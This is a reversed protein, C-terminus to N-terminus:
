MKSEREIMRAAIKGSERESNRIVEAVEPPVMVQEGKKIQYRKGNVGVFVFNDEDPRTIPPFYVPVMEPEKKTEEEPNKITEPIEITEEPIDNTEPIEAIEESPKKAM